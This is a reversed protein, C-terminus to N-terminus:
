DNQLFANVFADISDYRIFMYPLCNVNYPANICICQTEGNDYLKQDVLFELNDDILYDGKILYKKDTFCIDDYEINNNKLWNLTDIKNQYSCQYSVIIVHHGAERLRKISYSATNILCSNLFIEKSKDEFFYKVASYGLKEKILPFSIDVKYNIIDDKSLNENFEKNYIECMTSLIDRLVGDIDIKFTAM